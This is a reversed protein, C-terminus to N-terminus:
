RSGAAVEAVDLFAATQRWVLGDRFVLTGVSVVERADIRQLARYFIVDETTAAAQQELLTPELRMYDALLDRIEVRGRAVRDFRVFEADETYREALADADGRHILEVQSRLFDALVPNM